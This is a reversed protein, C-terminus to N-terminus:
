KRDNLEIIQPDKPHYELSKSHTPAYVDLGVKYVQSGVAVLLVKESDLPIAGSNRAQYPHM